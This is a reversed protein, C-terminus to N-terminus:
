PAPCEALFFSQSQKVLFYNGQEQTLLLVDGSQPHVIRGRVQQISYPLTIRSLNLLAGPITSLRINISLVVANKQVKEIVQGKLLHGPAPELVIEDNLAADFVQLLADANCSLKAPFQQFLLPKSSPKPSLAPSEQAAIANTIFLFVVLIGPTYLNKM